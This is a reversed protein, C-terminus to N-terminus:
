LLAQQARFFALRADHAILSDPTSEGARENGRILLALVNLVRALNEDTPVLGEARNMLLLDISDSHAVGRPAGDHRCLHVRASGQASVLTLVAAGHSVRTLEGVSWGLGILDGPALPALLPWLNDPAPEASPDVVPAPEAVEARAAPEEAAPVAALAPRPEAQSKATVILASTAAVSQIFVRRDM